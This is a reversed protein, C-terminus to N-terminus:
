KYKIKNIYRQVRDEVIDALWKPELVTVYPIYWLILPIIEMENTILLEVEISGDNDKGTILQTKLPKRLFLRSIEKDVLLKVSYPENLDFWISNASKLREEVINDVEFKDQTTEVSKITKLHFKKFKDNDNVDFALLYWYGDFFVLKLPKLCFNGKPPYQINIKLKQKISGELASFIEINSEELMESNLNAFIPHELQQTIQALLSHAKSYFLRGGSKALEDLIAIIIKEQSGLKDNAKKPDLKWYRKEKIVGFEKLVEYLDRQITKTSVNLENALQTITLGDPSQELKKYILEIRSYKTSDENKVFVPMEQELKENKCMTDFNYKLQKNHPM